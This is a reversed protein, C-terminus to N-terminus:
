GTFTLYVTNADKTRIAAYATSSLVRFKVRDEGIFGNFESQGVETTASARKLQVTYNHPIPGVGDTGQGKWITVYRYRPTGSISNGLNSLASPPITRVFNGDNDFVDVEFYRTDDTHEIRILIFSRGDDNVDALIATYNYHWDTGTRASGLDWNTSRLSIANNGSTVNAYATVKPPGVTLDATVRQLDHIAQAQETIKDVEGEVRGIRTTNDLVQPDHYVTPVKQGPYTLRRATARTSAAWMQVTLEQGNTRVFRVYNNPSSSPNFNALTLEFQIYEGGEITVLSSLSDTFAFDMNVPAQLAGSTNTYRGNIRLTLPTNASATWATGLAADYDEKLVEVRMKLTLVNNSGSVIDAYVSRLPVHGNTDVPNIIASGLAPEHAWGTHTDIFGVDLGGTQSNTHDASRIRLTDAAQTGIRYTEDPTRIFQGDDYESLDTPLSDVVLIVDDTDIDGGANADVYAKTAAQEDETPDAPLTLPGTLTGGTKPLYRTDLANTDRLYWGATEDADYFLTAFQGTSLDLSGSGPWRLALTGGSANVFGVQVANTLAADNMTFQFNAGTDHIYFKEFDDAADLVRSNGSDVYEYERIPPPYISVDPVDPEDITITETDDDEVIGTGALIEKVQEYVNTKTLNGKFTTTSNASADGTLQLEVSAVLDGTIEPNGYFDFLPNTTRDSGLFSLSSFSNEFLGGTTSIFEFRAQHPNTGHPLRGLLHVEHPNDIKEFGWNTVARAQALTWPDSSRTALAGEAISTSASWGGISTSAQLDHTKRTNAAVEQAIAEQDPIDKFLALREDKAYIRSAPM